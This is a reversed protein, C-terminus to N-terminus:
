NQDDLSTQVFIQYIHCLNYDSMWIEIVFSFGLKTVAAWFGPVFHTEGQSAKPRGHGTPWRLWVNYRTLHVTFIAKIAQIYIPTDKLCYAYLGVQCKDCNNCSRVRTPRQSARLLFIVLLDFTCAFKSDHIRSNWIPRFCPFSQQKQNVFGRNRSPTKGPVAVVVRM